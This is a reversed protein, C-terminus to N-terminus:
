WGVMKAAIYSLVAAGCVIGAPGSPVYVPVTGVNIIGGFFLGLVGGIADASAVFGLKKFFGWNSLKSNSTSSQTIIGSTSSNASLEDQWLTLSGRLTESSNLVTAIDTLSAHPDNMAAQEIDEIKSDKNLISLSPDQVVDDVLELYQISTPTNAYDSISLQDVDLDVVVSREVNVKAKAFQKTLESNPLAIPRTGTVKEIVDFMENMDLKANTNKTSKIKQAVKIKELSLMESVLSDHKQSFSIAQAKLQEIKSMKNTKNSEVFENKTCSTLALIISFLAVIANTTKNNKM